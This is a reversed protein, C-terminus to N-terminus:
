SGLLACFDPVSAIGPQLPPADPSFATALHVVTAEPFAAHFRNCLAPENDFAGIVTGAAALPATVSAKYAVDDDLPDAKLVLRSGITGVPFGDRQLARVTGVLMNPADRGTLYCPVAGAAALAGVFDVAGPTPLDHLVYEDTFFRGGWFDEAARVLEPDTVGVAALTDSVRYCVAGSGLRRLAALLGPRERARLHGLELLIRLTRLRSDYLTGDLDLVVLPDRGATRVARAAAFLADLPRPPSM